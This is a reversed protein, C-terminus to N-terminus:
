MTIRFAEWGDKETINTVVGLIKQNFGEIMMMEFHLMFFKYIRKLNTGCNKVRVKLLVFRAVKMKSGFGM